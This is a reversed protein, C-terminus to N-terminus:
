SLDTNEGADRDDSEIPSFSTPEAPQVPEPAPDPEPQPAPAPEPAAPPQVPQAPQVPQQAPQAQAQAPQAGYGYGYTQQPQAPQAGYGYGYTQQPQAGYAYAGYAAGAAPSATPLPDEENGWAPVNFQRMWLAIGTYGLMTVIMSLVAGLLVAVVLAPGLTTLFSGLMEFALNMKMSQSMIADFESIYDAYYIIQPVLGVLAIISIIGCILSSIAGGALQMGLIRMLGGIDSKTMQWITSVRFGAGIRQYITARLAAIMVMLNLLVSFIMWAFLLLPGFLPVLLLVSTILSSAFAWVLMIVFVRWGSAICAGVQVNKQKPSSTVGWATLRAWEVVYGLVGLPGVIPVLSAAVMVLIPKIWGRDRTLLGWSRAFYRNPRFGELEADNM